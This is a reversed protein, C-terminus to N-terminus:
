RTKLTKVLLSVNVFQNPFLAGGPNAFSARAKVTGTTTDILQRAVRAPRAGAGAAPATSLPSPLDARRDRAGGVAGHSTTRRCPSSSASRISRAVVVIPTEGNAVIQNGPDIQRLGVVGAVPSTIRTFSLNLQAAAVAAKDAAVTAENQRVLAAQTDVQQGAISNQSQLTRYRTLDLRADQLVAQDHALQARVQDLTVQFPRPDIQALLQGARVREGERFTVRDLMGSVRANVSVNALPTVTGLAQVTIPIAGLAARSTGVTVPPRRGGGGGGPGGAGAMRGHDGGAPTRACFTLIVAVVVAIAIVAVIQASSRWFPRLPTPKRPASTPERNM